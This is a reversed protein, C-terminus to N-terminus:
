IGMGGSTLASSSLILATTDLLPGEKPFETKSPLVEEDGARGGGRSRFFLAFETGDRGDEVGRVWGRAIGVFDREDPLGFSVTAVSAPPVV